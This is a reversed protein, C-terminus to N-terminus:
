THCRRSDTYCMGREVSVLSSCVDECVVGRMCICVDECTERVYLCFCGVLEWVFMRVLGRVDAKCVYKM